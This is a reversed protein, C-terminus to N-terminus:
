VLEIRPDLWTYAVDVALNFVVLMTAYVLVIGLILFQDKNLVANIFHTGIGPISFVREVVFSGTMVGAAAPGLFSVVPLLAVRLGHRLVVRTSSLGKARATRIYDDAMVEILGMRTLRAIYAAPALGLTVAPLVVHSFGGWGGIPLWGLLGGFVVLLLSGTVFAPLSVGILVVALGSLDAVSNPWLVGTVGATLGLVVAVILAGVGLSVSVPLGSAIIENVRQDRYQLSPGFDGALAVSKLYAGAFAWPSHLNYQRQIAQQVEVPPRMGEPRELPNGPVVWALVFTVSFIVALVLPLRILRIAILNLVPTNNIARHANDIM